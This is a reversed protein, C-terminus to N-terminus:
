LSCGLITLKEFVAFERASVEVLREFTLRFDGVAKRFILGILQLVYMGGIQDNLSYGPSFHLRGFATDESERVPFPADSSSTPFARKGM